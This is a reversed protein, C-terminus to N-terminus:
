DAVREWTYTPMLAETFVSVAHRIANQRAYPVQAYSPQPLDWSSPKRDAPWWERPWRLIEKRDSSHEGEARMRHIVNGSRTEMVRGTFTVMVKTNEMYEYQYLTRGGEIMTRGTPYPPTQTVPQYYATVEGVVLADVGLMQGLRVAQSADPAQGRMLGLRVTAWEVESPPLVRYYGSLTQIIEQEVEHSIAYDDTLNDFFLVAITNSGGVTVRPPHQVREYGACGTLLVAALVLLLLLRRKM